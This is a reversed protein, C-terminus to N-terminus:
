RPPEARSGALASWSRRIRGVIWHVERAIPLRASSPSLASKM